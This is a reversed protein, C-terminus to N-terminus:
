GDSPRTSCLIWPRGTGTEEADMMISDGSAECERAFARVVGAEEDGGPHGTYAVCIIRGGPRLAAHAARLAEATSAPRTIIAPDGGPLYGLNFIAVGLRGLHGAPLAARLEAHSRQHLTVRTELGTLALLAGTAALASPQIDFAHVHGSPGVAEALCATDRGKGATGDLAIDGARLTERALAQARATVRPPNV